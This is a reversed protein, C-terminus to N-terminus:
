DNFPIERVEYTDVPWWADFVDYYKEDERHKITEIFRQGFKFRWHYFKEGNWRAINANRCIGVYYRGVELAIKPLPGVERPFTLNM